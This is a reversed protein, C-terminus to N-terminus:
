KMDFQIEKQSLSGLETSFAFSKQALPVFQVVIAVIQLYKVISFDPSSLTHSYCMITFGMSEALRQVGYRHEWINPSPYCITISYYQEAAM